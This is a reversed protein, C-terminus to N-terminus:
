LASITVPGAVMNGEEIVFGALGASTALPIQMTANVSYVRWDETGQAILGIGRNQTLHYDGQFRPEGIDVGDIWVRRWGDGEGFQRTLTVNPAGDWSVSDM